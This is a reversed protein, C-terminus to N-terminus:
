QVELTTTITKELSLLVEDKSLEINLDTKNKTANQLSDFQLATLFDSNAPISLTWGVQPFNLKKTKHFQMIFRISATIFLKM